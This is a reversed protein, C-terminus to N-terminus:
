GGPGAPLSLLVAGRPPSASSVPWVAAPGARFVVPWLLKRGLDGASSYRHAWPIGAAAALFDHEVSIFVGFRIALAKKRDAGNIKVGSQCRKLPGFLFLVPGRFDCTRDEKKKSRKVATPM